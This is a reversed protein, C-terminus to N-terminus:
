RVTFRDIVVRAGAKSAFVGHGFHDRGGFTIGVRVPRAKAKHFQERTVDDFDGVKGFVSSWGGPERLDARLTFEGADIVVCEGHWWRAHEDTWNRHLIPRFNPPMGGRTTGRATVTCGKPLVVRGAMVLERADEPLRVANLTLVYRVDGPDRPIEMTVRDDNGRVTGSGYFAAFDHQLLNM